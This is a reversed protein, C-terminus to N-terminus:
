KKLIREQQELLSYIAKCLDIKSAGEPQGGIFTLIDQLQTINLTRCERGIRSRRRDTTVTPDIGRNDILKFKGQDINGYIINPTSSLTQNFAQAEQSLSSSSVSEELAMTRKTKKPKAAAPTVPTASSSTVPEASDSSSTVNELNVNHHKQMYESVNMDGIRSYEFIKSFFSTKVNIGLRNFIYFKDFQVIFGSRGLSGQFVIQKSVMQSLSWYVAEVPISKDFTALIDDLTWVFSKSFLEKIRLTSYAIDKELISELNLLFTSHDRQNDKPSYKCKYDCTQYDCEASNDLSSDLINTSRHFHCDFAITKLLRYLGSNNRQKIEALNYKQLDISVGESASSVHKYVSVTHLAPDKLHSHSNNRISRGIVQNIQTMNWSPELLHTQRIAKLTIGESLIPSGIIIQIDSGYRNNYSNFATLATTRQTQTLRNDFIVFRKNGSGSGSRKFYNTYGNQSLVHSLLSTGAKTVYQTYIFAKGTTRRKNQDYLLDLQRLIEYFKCSYKSLDGNFDFVHKYQPKISETESDIVLNYGDKGFLNNPFVMTGADSSNKYLTNTKNNSLDPAYNSEPSDLDTPVPDSSDPVAAGLEQQITQLYVSSQYDSMKSVYLVQSLESDSGGVTGKDIRTPMYQNNSALYSVKGVLSQEVLDKGKETLQFIDSQIKISPNKVSAVLGSEIAKSRVPIDQLPNLLQLIEFFEKVSDKVPTATMVVFRYNVSRRCLTLLADFTNNNTVNHIEDVIVITNNFNLHQLTDNNVDNVLKGFTNFSYYQAIYKDFVQDDVVLDSQTHKYLLKLQNKFNNRIGQSKTIVLIKRGLNYVYEKFGEAIAIASLTKGTGLEHFVLLNDYLTQKSIYQQLLMQHPSLFNVQRPRKNLHTYYDQKITPLQPDLTHPTFDTYYFSSPAGEVKGITIDPQITICRSDRTLGSDFIVAFKNLSSLFKISNSIHTYGLYVVTIDSGGGGSSGGSALLSYWYLDIQPSNLALLLKSPSIQQLNPLVVGNSVIGLLKQVLSFDQQLLFTSYSVYLDPDIVGSLLNGPSNLILRAFESLDSANSLEVLLDKFPEVLSVLKQTAREVLSSSWDNNDLIMFLKALKHLFLPFSNPSTRADSVTWTVGPFGMQSLKRFDRLPTSPSNPPNKLSDDISDEYFIQVTNNQSLIKIFEPSGVYLGDSECLGSSDRHQDGLLVVTRELVTGVIVHVPGSLQSVREQGVLLM